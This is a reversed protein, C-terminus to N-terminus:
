RGAPKERVKTGGGVPQSLGAGQNRSVREGDMKSGNQTGQQQMMGDEFANEMVGQDDGGLYEDTLGHSFPVKAM